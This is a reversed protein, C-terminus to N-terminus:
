FWSRGPQELYRIVKRLTFHDASNQHLWVKHCNKIYNLNPELGLSEALRFVDLAFDLTFIKDINFPTYGNPVTNDLLGYYQVFELLRRRISLNTYRMLSSLVHDPGYFSKVGTEFHVTILNRYTLTRAVKLDTWTARIKTFNVDVYFQPWHCGIIRAGQGKLNMLENIVDQPSACGLLVDHEVYKLSHGNPVLKDIVAHDNDQVLLKVVHDGGTGPAYNYLIM